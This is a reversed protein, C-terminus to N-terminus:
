DYGVKHAEDWGKGSADSCGCSPSRDRMSGVFWLGSWLDLADPSVRTARPTSLGPGDIWSGAVSNLDGSLMIWQAVMM